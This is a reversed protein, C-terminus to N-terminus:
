QLSEFAAIQHKWRRLDWQGLAYKIKGSTWNVEINRRFILKGNKSLGNMGPFTTFHYSYLEHILEMALGNVSFGTQIVSCFSNIKLGLWEQLVEQSEAVERLVMDQNSTVRLLHSMTHSGIMHGSKLLFHLDDKNMASFDEDYKDFSPDIVQRINNRYYGIQDEAKVFDPVIFFFAGIGKETLLRAVHLNNKLGDDFTFLIYPGDVLEGKFYADLQKPSLPKFHKCLSELLGEFDKKRDAPTSHMCLVILEDKPYKWGGLAFEIQGMISKFIDSLKGM